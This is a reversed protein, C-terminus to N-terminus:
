QMLRLAGIQMHLTHEYDGIAVKEDPNAGPSLRELARMGEEARALREAVTGDDRVAEAYVERALVIIESPPEAPERALISEIGTVELLADERDDEDDIQAALAHLRAVDATLDRDGRGNLIVEFVRKYEPKFEAYEM